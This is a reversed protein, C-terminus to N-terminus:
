LAFWLGQAALWVYGAGSLGTIIDATGDAVLSTGAAAFAISGTTPIVLQIQQFNQSGPAMRMGILNASGAAGTAQILVTVAFLEVSSGWVPGAATGISLDFAVSNNGSTIVYSFGPTTGATDAGSPIGYGFYLELANTSSMVPWNPTGALVDLMAIKDVAWTGNSATFEHTITAISAPAAGSWAITVNAVAAATVVGTFVTGTKSNNVGLESGALTWTVNTSTLSTATVTNNSNNIVIAVIMDGVNVPTLSFVSVNLHELATNVVNTFNGEGALDLELAIAKNAQITQFSNTISQVLGGGAAPNGFPDTTFEPVQSQILNGLGTVPEYQFYGAMNLIWNTGSISGGPLITINKTVLNLTSFFNLGGPITAVQASILAVGYVNRKGDVVVSGGPLLQVSNGGNPQVGYDDSLWVTNAPDANFILVPGKGAEVLPVQARNTVEITLWESVLREGSEV